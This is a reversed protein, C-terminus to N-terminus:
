TWEATVQARPDFDSRLRCPSIWSRQAGGRPPFPQGLVWARSPRGIAWGCQCDAHVSGGQVATRGPVRTTDLRGSPCGLPRDGSRGVAHGSTSRQDDATTWGYPNAPSYSHRVVWYSWVGPGPPRGGQHGSAGDLLGLWPTWRPRSDPCTDSHTDLRRSLSRGDRGGTTGPLHLFVTHAPAPSRRLPAQDQGGSRPRRDAAVELDYDVGKSVCRGSPRCAM